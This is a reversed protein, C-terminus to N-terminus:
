AQPVTWKGLIQVVHTGRHSMGISLVRSPRQELKEAEPWDEYVGRVPSPESPFSTASPKLMALTCDIPKFVWLKSVISWAYLKATILIHSAKSIVSRESCAVCFYPEERKRAKTQVM